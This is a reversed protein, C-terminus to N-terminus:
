KNFGMFFRLMRIPEAKFMKRIIKLIERIDGIKVQSKGGELKAIESAIKHFEKRYSM